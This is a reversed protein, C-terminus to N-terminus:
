AALLEADASEQARKWIDRAYNGPLWHSYGSSKYVLFADACRKAQRECEATDVERNLSLKDVPVRVLEGSELRVTATYNAREFSRCAYRVFKTVALLEGTAGASAKAAGDVKVVAAGHCTFCERQDTERNPNQWYGRGDCKECLAFAAKGNHAKNIIVAMGRKLTDPKPQAIQAADAKLEAALHYAFLWAHAKQAIEVTCAPAKSLSEFATCGAFRTTGTMHVEVAGTRTNWFAAVWDSDDYGSEEMDGSLRYLEPGQAIQAIQEQTSEM